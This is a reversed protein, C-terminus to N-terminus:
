RLLRVALNSYRWGYTPREPGRSGSNQHGFSVFFTRDGPSAIARLPARGVVRTVVRGGDRVELETQGDSGDYVYHFSYTRGPVLRVPTAKAADMRAGRPLTLNTALRIEDRAPGFANVYAIANGAFAGHGRHLWFISHNRAPEAPFWGGHTVDLHLEIRRFTGTAHIDVTRNHDGPRPVHVTGPHELRVADSPDDRRSGHEPPLPQEPPFAIEWPISSCGLAICGLVVLRASIITIRRGAGPDGQDPHPRMSPTRQTSGSSRVILTQRLTSALSFAQRHRPRSQSRKRRAGAREGGPGADRRRGRQRAIARICDRVTEGSSERHGNQALLCHQGVRRADHRQALLDMGQRGELGRLTDLLLGLVVGLALFHILLFAV